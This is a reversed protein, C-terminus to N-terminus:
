PEVRAQYSRSGQYPQREDRFAIEFDLYMHEGAVDPTITIEDDHSGSPAVVAGAFDRVGIVRPTGELTFGNGDPSPTTAALRVTLTELTKARPVRNDLRLRIRAPVDKKLPGDLEGRVRLERSYPDFYFTEPGTVGKPRYSSSYFVLMGDVWEPEDNSSAISATMPGRTDCTNPDSAPTFVGKDWSFSGGYRCGSQHTAVFRGGAEFRLETARMFLDFANSKTWEGLLRAYGAPLAVDDLSSLSGSAGAPPGAVFSRGGLTLGDNELAFALASPLDKPADSRPPSAKAGDLCVVGSREGGAAFSWRGEDDRETYDSEAGLAYSGDARLELRTCTAPQGGGAGCGPGRWTTATLARFLAERDGSGPIEVSSCRATASAVRPDRAEDPATHGASATDPSSGGCGVLLAGLLVALLRAMRLLPLM